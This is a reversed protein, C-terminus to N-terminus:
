EGYNCSERHCLWFGGIGTTVDLDTISVPISIAIPMMKVARKIETRIIIAMVVIRIRVVFPIIISPRIIFPIVRAM